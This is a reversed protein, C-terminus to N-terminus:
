RIMDPSSLCRPARWRCPFRLQDNSAARRASAGPPQGLHHRIAQALLAEGNIRERGAFDPAQVPIVCGSPAPPRPQHGTASLRSPM